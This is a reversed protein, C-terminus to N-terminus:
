LELDIVAEGQCRRIELSNQWRPGFSVFDQDLFGDRTALQQPCQARLTALEVQDRPMTCRRVEATMHLVDGNDSQLMVSSSDGHLRVEIQLRVTDQAGVQFPQLFTVRTLEIANADLHSLLQHGTEVF